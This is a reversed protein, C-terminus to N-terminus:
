QLRICLRRDETEIYGFKNLLRLMKENSPPVILNIYNVGRGRLRTLMENTLSLAVGRKQYSPSVALRYIWGWWGDDGGIVTGIIQGDAEAIIVLDPDSEIKPRLRAEYSPRDPWFERWLQVMQEIDEVTANRYTIKAVESSEKDSTKM